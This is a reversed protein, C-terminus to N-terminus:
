QVEQVDDIEPRKVARPEAIVGAALTLTAALHTPSRIM